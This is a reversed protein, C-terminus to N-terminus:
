EQLMWLRFQESAVYYVTGQSGQKAINEDLEISQRVKAEESTERFRIGERQQRAQREFMMAANAAKDRELRAKHFAAKTTQIIIKKEVLQALVEKSAGMDLVDKEDPAGGCAAVILCAEQEYASLSAWLEDPSRAEAAENM